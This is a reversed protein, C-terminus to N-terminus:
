AKPTLLYALYMVIKYHPDWLCRRLTEGSPLVLDDKAFNAPEQLEEGVHLRGSLTGCFPNSLAALDLVEVMSALEKHKLYM